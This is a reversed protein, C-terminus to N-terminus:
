KKLATANEFLCQLFPQLVVHLTLGLWESGDNCCKDM